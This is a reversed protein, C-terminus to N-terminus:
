RDEETLRILEAPRPLTTTAARLVPALISALSLHRSFRYQAVALYRHAYKPFDFAYYTGALAMKLNGLLTNVGGKFQALKGSSTLIQM